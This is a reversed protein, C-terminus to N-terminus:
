PSSFDASPLPCPSFFGNSYSASCFFYCLMLVSQDPAEPLSGGPHDGARSNPLQLSPCAPLSIPFEPLPALTLPCTRQSGTQPKVSFPQQTSGAHKQWPLPLFSGLNTTIAVRRERSLPITHSSEDCCRRLM